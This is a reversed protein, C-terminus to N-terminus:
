KFWKRSTAAIYADDLLTPRLYSRPIGIWEILFDMSNVIPDKPRSTKNQGGRCKKTCRWRDATPELTKIQVEKTM